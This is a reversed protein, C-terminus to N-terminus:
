PRKSARRYLLELGELTLFPRVDQITRSLPAILAANGGTAIICLSGGSMEQQMRSILNDVMAAHGVVIGSRLSSITDRGIVQAPALLEVRPLKATRSFLAEAAIGLGPAIAGGLYEGEHSVASFTTATGLDVVILDTKYYEYAAAANVLRDTGLEAPNRYSLRLGTDMQTSVILARRSFFKQAVAAFVPALRPVVSSLIIGSIEGPDTKGRELVDLLLLGYDDETKTADTSLRWHATLTQGEFVGLLVNTNGINIALLM